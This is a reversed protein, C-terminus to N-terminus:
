YIGYGGGFGGGMMSGRGLMGMHTMFCLCLASSGIISAAPFGLDAIDDCEDRFGGAMKCVPKQVLALMVSCAAFMFLMSPVTDMAMMSMKKSVLLWYKKKDRYPIM